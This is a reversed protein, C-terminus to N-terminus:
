SVWDVEAPNEWRKSMVLYLKGRAEITDAHEDVADTERMWLGNSYSPLTQQFNRRIMADSGSSHQHAGQRKGGDACKVV